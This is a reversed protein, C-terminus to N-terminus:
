SNGGIKQSAHNVGVQRGLKKKRAMDAANHNAQLLDLQPRPFDLVRVLTLLYKIFVVPMFLAAITFRLIAFTTQLASAEAGRAVSYEEKATEFAIEQMRFNMYNIPNMYTMESVNAQIKLQGADVPADM